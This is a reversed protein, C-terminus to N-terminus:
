AGQRDAAPSSRSPKGPVDVKVARSVTLSGPYQKIVDMGRSQLTANQTASSKKPAM